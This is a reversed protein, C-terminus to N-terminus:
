TGHSLTAAAASSRPISSKSSTKSASAEVANASALPDRHSSSATSEISRCPKTSASPDGTPKTTSKSKTPAHSARSEGSDGSPADLLDGDVLAKQLGEVQRDVGADLADTLLLLLLDLGEVVFKGGEDVLHAM